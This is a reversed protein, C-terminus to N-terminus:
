THYEWFTKTAERKKYEILETHYEWFTNTAERKKYEM